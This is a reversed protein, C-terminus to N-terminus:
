GKKEVIEVEMDRNERGRLKGALEAVGLCRRPAGPGLSLVPCGCLHLEVNGTLGPSEFCVADEGECCSLVLYIENGGDTTLSVGARRGGATATSRLPEQAEGVIEATLGADEPWVSALGREPPLGGRGLTERLLDWLSDLVPFFGTGPVLGYSRAVEPYIRLIDELDNRLRPPLLPTVEEYEELIPGLVDEVTESPVMGLLMRERLSEFFIRPLLDFPELDAM